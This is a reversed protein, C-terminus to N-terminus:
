MHFYPLATHPYQVAIRDEPNVDVTYLVIIFLWELPKMVFYVIDAVYKSNIHKSIPYGVSDYFKRIVKHFAPTKEMLVQEFANAVCLQRNVVVRHGHRMGIRLPKVIRKHGGAAVTCLYHEDYSLNPPPIKQSMTWDATETWAKIISTPEQGFLLLATIIIGLLPIALILAIWPLNTAKNLISMLKKYKISYAGNQLLANRQYVFIYISKIFIIICNVPLLTLFLDMSFDNSIQICFLVCIGIGLYIASIGLASIIPSQKSSPIFRIIIYGALAAAIIVGITLFTDPSIFSHQQGNYLQTDWSATQIIDAIETYMYSYFVGICMAIVEIVKHHKKEEKKILYQIFVWINWGTLLFPIAIVILTLIDM